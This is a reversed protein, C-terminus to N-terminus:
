KPFNRGVLMDISVDFFDAIKVLTELNPERQGLEYNQYTRYPMNLASATEAVTLKAQQRLLRLNEKFKM